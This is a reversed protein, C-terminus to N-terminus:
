TKSFCKFGPIHAGEKLSFPHLSLVELCFVHVLGNNEFMMIESIEQGILALNTHIRKLLFSFSNTLVPRSLITEIGM